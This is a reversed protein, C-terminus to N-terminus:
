SCDAYRKLNTIKQGFIHLMPKLRDSDRVGRVIVLLELETELDLQDANCVAIGCGLYHPDFIAQWEPHFSIQM